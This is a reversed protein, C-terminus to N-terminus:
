LSRGLAMACIRRHRPVETSGLYNEVIERPVVVPNDPLQNAFVVLERALTNLRFFEAREKRSGVWVGDKTHQKSIENAQKDLEAAAQKLTLATIM